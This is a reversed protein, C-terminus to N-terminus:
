SATWATAKSALPITFDDKWTPYLATSSRMPRLSHLVLSFNQAYQRDLVVDTGAIECRALYPELESRIIEGLM